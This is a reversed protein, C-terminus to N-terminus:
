MSVLDFHKRPIGKKAMIWWCLGRLVKAYSNKLNNFIMCEDTKMVRYYELMKRILHIPEMISRACTFEFHYKYMEEMWARDSEGM